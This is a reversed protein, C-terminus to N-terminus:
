VSFESHCERNARDLGVLVVPLRRLVDLGLLRQEARDEDVVLGEVPDRIEELRLMEELRHMADDVLDSLWSIRALLTAVGTVIM